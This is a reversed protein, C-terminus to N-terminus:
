VFHVKGWDADAATRAAKEEGPMGLALIGVIRMKENEIGLIDKVNQEADGRLSSRLHIQCWCSGVGESVAMLNMYSLAISSDEIWTDSKESDACVVVAASCKRLMAGGATKAGALRKLTETDTVAFFACPKRDRSTPALLGAEIIKRLKNEPVPEGTYKRVSRRELIVEELEM